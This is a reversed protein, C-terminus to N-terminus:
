GGSIPPIVAVEAIRLDASLPVSHDFIYEGDVAFMCSELLESVAPYKSLISQKLDRVTIGSDKEITILDEKLNTLERMSAFYLIRVRTEMKIIFLVVQHNIEITM